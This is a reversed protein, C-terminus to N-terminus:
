HCSRCLSQRAVRLSAPLRSVASLRPKTLARQHVRGDTCGGPHKEGGDVAYRLLAVCAGELLLIFLALYRTPPWPYALAIPTFQARLLM